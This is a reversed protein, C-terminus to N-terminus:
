AEVVKRPCGALDSTRYLEGTVEARWGGNDAKIYTVGSYPHEIRTGIPANLYDEESFLMTGIPLSSDEEEEPVLRKVLVIGHDAYRAPSLTWTARNVVWPFEDDIGPNRFGVVEEQTDKLKVIWAENNAVDRPKPAKAEQILTRIKEIKESSFLLESDVIEEIKEIGITSNNVPSEEKHKPEM